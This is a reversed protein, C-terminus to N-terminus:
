ESNIRNAPTHSKWEEPLHGFTDIWNDVLEDKDYLEACYPTENSIM